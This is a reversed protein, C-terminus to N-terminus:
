EFVGFSGSLDDFPAIGEEIIQVVGDSESEDITRGMMVRFLDSSLKAHDGKVEGMADKWEWAIESRMAVIRQAIWLPDTWGIPEGSDPLVVLSPDASLLLGLFDDARGLPRDGEFHSPANDAYFREYWQTTVDSGSHSLLDRLLRRASAHTCLDYLLDFNGRFLPSVNGDGPRADAFYNAIVDESIRDFTSADQKSLSHISIMIQEDIMRVVDLYNQFEDAIRERVPLIRQVLSAPRIDIEAMKENPRSMIGYLIADWTPYKVVDFAGTGHYNALNPMDFFDELWKRSHPDWREEWLFSQIARQTLLLKPCLMAESHAAFEEHPMEPVTAEDDGDNYYKQQQMKAIRDWLDVIDSQQQQKAAAGDSVEASDVDGVPADPADPSPGISFNLFAAADSLEDENGEPPGFLYIFADEVTMTMEADYDNKNAGPVDVYSPSPTIDNSADELTEEADDGNENANLSLSYNSQVDFM